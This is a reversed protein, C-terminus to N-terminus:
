VIKRKRYVTAGAESFCDCQSSHIKFFADVCVKGNERDDAPLGDRYANPKAADWVVLQAPVICEAEPDVRDCSNHVYVAGGVTFALCTAGAFFYRCYHRSHIAATIPCASGPEVNKSHPITIFKLNYILFALIQTNRLGHPSRIFHFPYAPKLITSFYVKRCHSRRFVFLFSNVFRHTYVEAGAVRRFLPSNQLNFFKNQPLVQSFNLCDYIM